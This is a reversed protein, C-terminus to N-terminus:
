WGARDSGMFEFFGADRLRDEMYRNKRIGPAFFQHRTESNLMVKALFYSLRAMFIVVSLLLIMAGIAVPALALSDFSIM